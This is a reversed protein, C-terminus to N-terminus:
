KPPIVLKWGPYILDPHQILKRNRRWIKPWLFPNGYIFDYEAIRWLCDRREPILRVVYLPYEAKVAQNKYAQILRGAENFYEESLEYNGKNWENVGQKWLEKAQILLNEESTEGLVVAEGNRFLQEPLASEEGQPLLRSQNGSGEEPSGSEEPLFENGAWPEPEIVTGEETVVTLSSAEEIEGMVEMMLTRAKKREELAKRRAIKVAALAAERAAGLYEESEFLQYKQYAEIGQMYLQNVKEFERPARAHAKLEEADKLYENTDRKLIGIWRLQESLNEYLSSMKGLTAYAEERAGTIDGAAYFKEAKEIGSVAEKYEGPLFLQAEIAKLQTDMRELRDWLDQAARAVSNNFAADAKQRAELLHKRAAEPDTEKVELALRLAEEAEALTQPDYYSADVERARAIANSASLIESEEVPRAKEPEVVPKVEPEKEPPAEVVKEPAPAEEIKEPATACSMFLYIFFSILIIKLLRGAM